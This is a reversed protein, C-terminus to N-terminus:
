INICIFLGGMVSFALKKFFLLIKLHVHVIYSGHPIADALEAGSECLTLKPFTPIRKMTSRLVGFTDGRPELENSLLVGWSLQYFDPRIGIQRFRAV